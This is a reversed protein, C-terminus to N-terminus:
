VSGPVPQLVDTVTVMLGTGAAITPTLPKQSPVDACNLSAVVPPVHLELVVVIAKMVEPPRATPTLEPVVVIVYVLGIVPQIATFVTVTNGIADGIVPDVSVQTVDVIASESADELPVHVLPVLETAVTPAPLPMTVPTDGPVLTIEYVKLVPHKAVFITVILGKGAAIVPDRAAHVPTVLLRESAVEPPVHVLVLVLTADIPRKEPKSEPSVTPM